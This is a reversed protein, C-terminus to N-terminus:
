PVGLEHRLVAPCVVLPLVELCDEKLYGLADHIAQELALDGLVVSLGLDPKLRPVTEKGLNKRDDLTIDGAPNKATRAIGTTLRSSPRCVSARHSIPAPNSSM